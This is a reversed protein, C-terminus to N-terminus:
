VYRVFGLVWDGKSSCRQSSFFNSHTFAKKKQKSMYTINGTISVLTSTFGDCIRKSERTFVFGGRRLCRAKGGKISSMSGTVEHASEGHAYPWSGVSMRKRTATRPDFVLPLANHQHRRSRLTRSGNHMDQTREISRQPRSSDAVFWADCM